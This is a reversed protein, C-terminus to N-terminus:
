KKELAELREQMAKMQQRLLEVEEDRASDKAVQSAAAPSSKLMSEVRATVDEQLAVAGRSGAAGAAGDAGKAGEAGGPVWKQGGSLSAGTEYHGSSGKGGKGGAGGVGGEGGESVATIRDSLERVDAQRDAAWYLLTINGGRGGAAGLGGAGGAGGTPGNCKKVEGAAQGEGGAGGNGGKGGSSDVTLGGVSVLGLRLRLDTGNIGAKGAEGAGGPQGSKCTNAQGAVSAGAAGEAGAAGRAEIRVGNGLSARGAELGWSRLGPAVVIRSNDEMVLRDLRLTQPSSVHYTEGSRIVLEQGAFAPMALTSLAIALLKMKM